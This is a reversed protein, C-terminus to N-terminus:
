SINSSSSKPPLGTSWTRFCLFTETALAGTAVSCLNAIVMSVFPCVDSWSREVSSLLAECPSLCTGQSGLVESELCTHLTFCFAGLSAEPSTGAHSRTERSSIPLIGKFRLPMVAALRSALGIDSDEGLEPASVGLALMVGVLSTVSPTALM